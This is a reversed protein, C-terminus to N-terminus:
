PQRALGVAMSGTSASWPEVLVVYTGAVSLAPLDYPTLNTRSVRDVLRTGDPRFVTVNFATSPTLTSSGFTLRLKDGSAGTFSVQGDQGARSVSVTAAAGGATITGAVVPESLTLTVTGTASRMSSVVLEYRGTSPLPAFTYSDPSNLGAASDLQTGDPNNAAVNFETFGTTGATTALGLRQGATGDVTVRAHQGPRTVTVPKAAGTTTLAGAAVDESLWVTVPGTGGGVLLEHSGTGTLAAVSAGGSHATVPVPAGDPGTVSATPNLSTDTYGIGLRQGATGDFRLRASQGPRSLTLTKGASTTTVSGGDVESSLWLKGSGTEGFYFGVVLRYRGATAARFRGSYRSFVLQTGGAKANDQDFVDVSLLQFEPQETFGFDYWTGAVADFGVEALQGAKALTFSYGQAATDTSGTLKRVLQATVSGTGAGNPDVYLSYRGTAALTPLPASRANSATIYGPGNNPEVTVARGSPDTLWFRANTGVSNATVGFGLRDGATGDFGFRLVKGAPVAASVAAGEVALTGGDVVDSAGAVTFSYTTPASLVGGNAARVTLTRAGATSPTIGVSVQGTAAVESPAADTDLRYVYKTVAASGGPKFTFTGPLGVGGNAQAEAPYDSSSVVPAAPPPQDAVIFDYVFVDSPEGVGNFARVTLTRHGAVAPTVTVTARSDTATVEKATAEGDLQYSYKAVPVADGPAFSFTGAVGAGGHPLSDSPYTASTVVPLGVPPEALVLDWHTLTGEDFGFNDTVVLKWPGNADVSSMGTLPYTADLDTAADAGDAEKLVRELGNPATIKVSLDGRFPHEARVRVRATAAVKRPCTTVDITSTVSGQDPVPRRTDDALACVAQPPVGTYLLKNPSGTGLDAPKLVGSSAQGLLTATVQAPTLNPSQSLLLAAAGAVHPSAMSTGRLTVTATDTANHSSKISEGPAFLDLCTGYNSGLAVGNPTEKWDRAREDVPNSAGVTIAERLAAPSAQCADRNDNGAAVVYTIGAAISNKVALEEADSKGGGLSMNVVAPRQAHQTVWDVGAIIESVTGFNECSLVRVSILKAKKAVGYTAGGVTGAVHTGHGSTNCDQGNWGDGIADFGVSARGGFEAHTVRVGTDMIYVSVGAGAAEAYTYRDDLVTSHQDVRDLNWPPTTQTATGRVVTDAEVREVRPDAALRRAEAASAHVAFGSLAAGFTRSVKGGHKRTLAGSGSAAATGPKLTVIYSGDVVQAGAPEHVQGEQARAQGAFVGAFVSAAATVALLRRWGALAQM